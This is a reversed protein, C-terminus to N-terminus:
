EELVQKAISQYHRKADVDPKRDCTAIHELTKRLRENEARLTASERIKREYKVLLKAQDVLATQIDILREAYRSHMDATKDGSEISKNHHWYILRQLDHRLKVM